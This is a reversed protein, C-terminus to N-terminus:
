LHNQNKNLNSFLLRFQQITLFIDADYIDIENDNFFTAILKTLHQYYSDSINELM